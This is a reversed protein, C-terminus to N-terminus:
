REGLGVNLGLRLLLLSVRGFGLLLVLGVTGGIVCGGGGDGEGGFVGGGGDGEVAVVVADGGELGGERRM